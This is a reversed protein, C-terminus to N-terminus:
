QVVLCSISLSKERTVLEFDCKRPTNKKSGLQLNSHELTFESRKSQQGQHCQEGEQVGSEKEERGHRGAFHEKCNVELHTM